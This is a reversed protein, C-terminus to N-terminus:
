EFNKYITQVFVKLVRSIETFQLVTNKVGWCTQQIVWDDKIEQFTIM